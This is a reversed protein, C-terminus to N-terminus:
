RAAGRPRRATTKASLRRVQREATARSTSPLLAAFAESAAKACKRETSRFASVVDHGQETLEAGGGGGRGGKSLIVLPRDYLANLSQLLDWARKYSMQMEAAAASLSGSRAIGELLGIKGQGLARDPGFDIRLRVTLPSM